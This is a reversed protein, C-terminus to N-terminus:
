IRRLAEAPSFQKSHRAPIMASVSSIIVAMVITLVLVDIGMSPYIVVSIPMDMNQLGEFHIGKVAFYVVLAYGIAGGFIGGLSGIIAGELTFNWFIQRDTMGMSKLTGIEQIREFIAMMMTNIIIFSALFLIFAAIMYYIYRASDLFDYYTGVQESPTMVTAAGPPLASLISKKVDAPKAKRDTFVLLESAATGPVKLLRRADAMNIFFFQRDFVGIGFSFIGTVRLKIGNLGEAYTKTAILLDDGLKVRLRKALNVGIYIGGETLSGEVIKSALEYRSTRLDTGVGVANVSDDEKGMLIGFPIREEVGTVGPLAKIKASWEDAPVVAKDVPMFRFMKGYEPTVVKLNGTQFNVFNRSMEDMMGNIFGIAFASILAGFFISTATLLSRRRNRFVNRFAFRLIMMM